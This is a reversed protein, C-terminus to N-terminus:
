KNTNYKNYLPQYTNIYFSEREKYNDTQELTGMIIYNHNKRLTEYFPIWIKSCSLKEIGAKHEVFRQKLRKSSGIYLCVGNEYIGYVGQGASKMFNRNYIDMKNLNNKSWNKVSQKCKDTKSYKKNYDKLCPKCYSQFGNKVRPNNNFYELTSPYENKCKSCTKM